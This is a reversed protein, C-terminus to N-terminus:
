WSWIIKLRYFIIVPSGASFDTRLALMSQFSTLYWLFIFTLSSLSLTLSLCLLSLRFLIRSFCLVIMPSICSSREFLLKTLYSVSWSSLEPWAMPGSPLRMAYECSFRNSFSKSSECLSLNKMSFNPLPIYWYQHLSSRYINGSIQNDNTM